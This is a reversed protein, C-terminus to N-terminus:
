CILANAAVIPAHGVMRGRCQHEVFDIPRGQVGNQPRGRAFLSSHDPRADHQRRGVPGRDRPDRLVQADRDIRDLQPTPSVLSRAKSTQDFCRPRAPRRGVRPGIAVLDDGEREFRRWLADRVPADATQGLAEGHALRGYPPDPLARVELRMPGLRELELM